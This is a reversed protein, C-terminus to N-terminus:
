DYFVIKENWGIKCKCTDVIRIRSSIMRKRQKMSIQCTITLIWFKSNRVGQKMRSWLVTKKKNADSKLPIRSITERKANYKEERADSKHLTRIKETKTQSLKMRADSISLCYWASMTLSRWFLPPWDPVTAPGTGLDFRWYLKGSSLDLVVCTNAVWGGPWDYSSWRAEWTRESNGSSDPRRSCITSPFWQYM